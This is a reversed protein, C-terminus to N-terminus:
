VSPSNFRAVWAMGIKLMRKLLSKYLNTAYANTMVVFTVTDQRMLSVDALVKKVTQAVSKEILM